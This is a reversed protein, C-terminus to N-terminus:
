DNIENVLNVEQNLRQIALMALQTCTRGDVQVKKDCHENTYRKLWWKLSTETDSLYLYYDTLDRQSVQVDEGLDHLIRAKLAQKTSLHSLSKMSRYVESCLSMLVKKDLSTQLIDCSACAVMKELAVDHYM